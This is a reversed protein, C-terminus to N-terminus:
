VLRTRDCSTCRTPSSRSCSRKQIRAISSARVSTTWEGRLKAVELRHLGDIIRSGSKQVLISPLQVSGAADALLRVHAPDTGEQRLHFGPVLLSIPVSVEPVPCHTEM